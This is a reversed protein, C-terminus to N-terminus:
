DCVQERRRGVVGGTWGIASWQRGGRLRVIAERECDLASQSPGRFVM